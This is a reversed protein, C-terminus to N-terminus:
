PFEQLLCQIDSKLFSGAKNATGPQLALDNIIDEDVIFNVVATPALGLEILTLDEEIRHGTPNVLNFPIWDLRLNDQVFKRLDSLKEQAWFTGQLVVSDPFRIRIMTYRYRRLERKEDRERMAKTRLIEIRETNESRLQQERKLEAPTLNYFDDPIVFNPMHQPTYVRLARDLQPRIPEASLLCDKMHKLYDVNQAKEEPIIFYMEEPQDDLKLSKREFGCTLLFEESGEMPNVKEQFARNNLRFKRFKEEGPNNILNDIYKTLIDVCVKVAEKNKNLTQIMLTSTMEPQAELSNYLFERIYENIEQKPLVAPGIDPCTFLLFPCSETNSKESEGAKASTDPSQQHDTTSTKTGSRVRTKMVPRCEGSKSQNFRAIAAAAARQESETKSASPLSSPGGSLNSHLSSSAHSEKEQALKHGPGAKRFFRDLKIKDFFNNPM